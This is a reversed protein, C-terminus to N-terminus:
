SDNYNVIQAITDRVLQLKTCRMGRPNRKLKDFQRGIDLCSSTPSFHCVIPIPPDRRQNLTGDRWVSICLTCPQNTVCTVGDFNHLIRSNRKNQHKIGSDIARMMEAETISQELMRRRCHRTFDPM